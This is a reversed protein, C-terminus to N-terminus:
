KLDKRSVKAALSKTDTAPLSNVDSSPATFGFKSGASSQLDGSGTAQLPAGLTPLTHQVGGAM